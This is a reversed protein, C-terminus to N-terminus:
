PRMTACRSCVENARNAHITMVKCLRCNTIFSHNNRQKTVSHFLFPLSLSSTGGHWAGGVRDGIKWKGEGDGVAVVDGIIEHGPTIPFANGMIGSQVM